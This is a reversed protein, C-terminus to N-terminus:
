HCRFTCCCMVFASLREKNGLTLRRYRVENYSMGATVCLTFDCVTCILKNFNNNLVFFCSKNNCCCGVLYRSFLCASTFMWFICHTHQTSFHTVESIDDSCYKYLMTKIIPTYKITIWVTPSSQFQFNADAM